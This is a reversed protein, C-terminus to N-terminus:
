QRPLQKEVLVDCHSNQYVTVATVDPRDEDREYLGGTVLDDTEVDAPVVPAVEAGLRGVVLLPGAVDAVDVGSSRSPKSAM